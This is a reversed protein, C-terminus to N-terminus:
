WMGWMFKKHNKWRDIMARVEQPTHCSIIERKQSLDVVTGSKVKFIEATQQQNGYLIQKALQWADEMGQNYATELDDETIILENETGPMEREWCRTCTYKDRGNAEFKFKIKKEYGYDHPCFYEITSDM